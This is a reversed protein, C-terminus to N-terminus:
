GGGARLRRYEELEALGERMRGPREILLDGLGRHAEASDPDLELAKRFAEEAEDPSGARALAKGLASHVEARDPALEVAKTLISVAEDVKLADLYARALDLHAGVSGPDHALEARSFLEATKLKRAAALAYRLSQYYAAEEPAAEVARAFLDVAEAPRGTRLRLGALEFIAKASDPSRETVKETLKEAEGPDGMLERCEALRLRADDDKGAVEDDEDEVEELLACARGLDEEDDHRFRTRGLCAMALAKKADMDEPSAEHAAGAAAVIGDITKGLREEYEGGLMVYRAAMGYAELCGPACALAKEIRAVAADYLSSAEYLEALHLYLRPEDGFREVAATLESVSRKLRSPEVTALGQTFGFNLAAQLSAADCEAARRFTEAADDLRGAALYLCGLRNGHGDEVPEGEKAAKEAEELPRYVLALEKEALELEVRAEEALSTGGNGQSSLLQGAERYREVAEALRATEYLVDGLRLHARPNEPILEIARRLHTEATKFDGAFSALSGLDLRADGNEPERAILKELRGRASAYAAEPSDDGRGGRDPRLSDFRAEGDPM